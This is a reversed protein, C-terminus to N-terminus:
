YVHTSPTRTSRRKSLEPVREARTARGVPALTRFKILRFVVLTTAPLRFFRMRGHMGFFGVVNQGPLRLPFAGGKRRGGKLHPWIRRMKKWFYNTSFKLNALPLGGRWKGTRWGFFSSPSRIFRPREVPRRPQFGFIRVSFDGVLRSTWSSWVLIPQASPSLEGKWDKFFELM